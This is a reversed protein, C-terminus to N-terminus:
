KVPRMHVVKVLSGPNTPHPAYESGLVEMPTNPALIHEYESSNGKLANISSPAEIRAIAQVNGKQFSLATHPSLSTSLFAPDQFIDGRKLNNARSNLGGRYLATPEGLIQSNISNNLNTLDPHHELKEGDRLRANKSYYGTEIYDQLDRSRPFEDNTFMNYKHEYPPEMPKRPALADYVGPLSGIRSPDPGSPIIPKVVNGQHEVMQPLANAPMSPKIAQTNFPIHEAMQPIERAINAAKIASVGRLMPDALSAVDLGMGVPDNYATHKIAELNGYRDKLGRGFDEAKRTDRTDNSGFLKAAGSEVLDAMNGAAQAPNSITQGVGKLANIGSQPVRNLLFDRLDAM